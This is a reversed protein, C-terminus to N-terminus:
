FELNFNLLATTVSNFAASSLLIFPFEKENGAEDNLHKVPGSASWM